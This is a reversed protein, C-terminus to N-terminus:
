ARRGRAQAAVMVATLLVVGQVLTIVWNPFDQLLLGNQLVSIFMAGVFTGLVNFQGNSLVSTGIFAAVFPPLFLGQGATPYHAASLSSQMIAAVAVCLGLVVFALIRIRTVRVGAVAAAEPNEGTAKVHRGFVTSRLVVGVVITVVIASLAVASIDKIHWASINAYGDPIGDLIPTDGAIGYMLGLYVSGLALTVIFSSARRTAVLAGNVVGSAVGVLLGLVVAAGPGFSWHAMAYVVIGSVLVFTNPFALDFEGSALVFTLGVSLLLVVSTQDFMSVANDWKPFSDPSLVSFVVIMAAFTALVGWRELWREVRQRILGGPPGTTAPPTADPTGAEADVVGAPTRAQTGFM